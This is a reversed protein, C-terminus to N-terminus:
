KLALAAAHTNRRRAGLQLPYVVGDAFSTYGQKWRLSGGSGEIDSAWKPSDLNGKVRVLDAPTLMFFDTDLIDPFAQIKTGNWSAANVNGAALNQDGSFQVQNQLLAYLNAQQKFSTWIETAAGGSNQMVQRQLGLALDLSMVTTTTDKYGQWFEQGSTAPNLGGLAGNGVVSRLGNVEPNANATSNPNAIYVFHTGLTTAIAAGSITITPASPSNNVGTVQVGTALADTDSTTGIDVYQGTSTGAPLWGRALAAAGWAAGEASAAVLKITTASATTDCAAVVSSGDTVVQRSIQHRTNEVAGQIELDKASVVAQANGGTQVLASTELEIQFWSYPMTYIAQALPQATAPNLQGGAPGVSTFSGARGGLIPVQAQSGIMVGRVAELRGLPTNKDEIQRQLEEDTWVDKIAAGMTLASQSM